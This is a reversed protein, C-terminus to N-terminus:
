VIIRNIYGFIVIAGITNAFARIELADNIPIGPVVTYLGESPGVTIVINDDPSSTGGFEITLTVSAGSNNSAFLWVEDMHATSNIATHILTGPTSTASVAIGRGNSSESLFTKYFTAM